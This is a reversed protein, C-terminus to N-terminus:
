KSAPKSFFATLLNVKSSQLAQLTRQETPSMNTINECVYNPVGSKSDDLLMQGRTFTFTSLQCEPQM